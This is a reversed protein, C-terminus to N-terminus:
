AAGATSLVAADVPVPRAHGRVVQLIGQWMPIYEGTDFSYRLISPWGDDPIAYNLMILTIAVEMMLAVTADAGPPPPADADPADGTAVREQAAIAAEMRDVLNQFDDGHVSRKGTGVIRSEEVGTSPNPKKGFLPFIIVDCGPLYWTQGDALTVPCAALPFTDRRLSQENLTHM